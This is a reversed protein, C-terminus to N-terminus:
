RPLELTEGSRVSYIKGDVTLWIEVLTPNYVTYGDASYVLSNYANVYNYIEINTAYWVDDKGSLQECIRELRDWNNNRAFEFSHGWLYFLKPTLASVSHEKETISNFKDIYDFIRPNEHHATPMWAYWDTPLEFWDNDGGLTRSYAIDIDKLYERINSYAASNSFGNIGSDPYAMGQIIGGFRRELELRCELAETIGVIPRQKGPARHHACHCAIEHGQKLIHEKLEEESLEWGNSDGAIRSSVINFTGKIGFRDLTAALRIDDRCGDDYSFTVAKRLGGPFRLFSYLM